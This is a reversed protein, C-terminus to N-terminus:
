GAKPEDAKRGHDVRRVIEQGTLGLDLMATVKGEPATKVVADWAERQQEPPLSTLPRTQRENEPPIDGMPSLNQMVKASDILRYAVQRAYGWREKCYKEFTGYQKYLGSDRIEM